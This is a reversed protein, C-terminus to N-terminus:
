RRSIALKRSVMERGNSISYLYFGNPLQSGDFDIRNEGPHIQVHQRHLTKGFIDSVVFDYDGSQETEVAIQTWGSTPNPQNRISFQSAFTEQTGVMYCNEFGEPKVFLYYNSGAELDDPATLNLPIFSTSVLVDVKLDYMGEQGAAPTGFLIVCGTTEAPFVCNPPNCVYDFGAPLNQIAGDSAISASILPIDGFDTTYTAPINFTFTFNYYEGVCATDTLGGDPRDPSYPLPAVVVSDPVNQDPSCTTEQASVANWAIFGFFLLVVKKM